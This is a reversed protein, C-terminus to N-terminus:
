GAFEERLVLVHNFEIISEPRDVIRMMRHEKSLYAVGLLRHLNVLLEPELTCGVQHHRLRMHRHHALNLLLRVQLLELPADAVSVAVHSGVLHQVEHVFSRSSINEVFRRQESHDLHEKPENQERNDSHHDISAHFEDPVM